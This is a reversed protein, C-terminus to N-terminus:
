SRSRPRPRRRRGRARSACAQPGVGPGRRADREHVLYTGAKPVPLRRVRLPRSGCRKCSSRRTATWSWPTPHAPRGIRALVFVDLNQWPWREAALAPEFTTRGMLVADCTKEPVRPIRVGGPEVCPRRAARALRRAHDRLQGSQRVHTHSDADRFFYCGAEHDVLAPEFLQRGPEGNRAHAGIGRMAHIHSARAVPNAVEQTRRAAVRVDDVPVPLWEHDALQVRGGTVAICRRDEAVAM